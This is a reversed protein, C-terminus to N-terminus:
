AHDHEDEVVEPAPVVSEALNKRISLDALVARLWDPTRESLCMFSLSWLAIPWSSHAIVWPWYLATAGVLHQIAYSTTVYHVTGSLFFAGGLALLVIGSFPPKESHLLRFSVLGVGAATSVIGNRSSSLYLNEHSIWLTWASRDNAAVPTATPSSSLMKALRQRVSPAPLAASRAASRPLAPGARGALGKYMQRQVASRAGLGGLRSLVRFSM